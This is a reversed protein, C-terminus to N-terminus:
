GEETLRVLIKSTNMTVSINNFATINVTYERGSQLNYFATSDSTILRNRVQVKACNNDIVIVIYMDAPLTDNPQSLKLSFSSTTINRIQIIPANVDAYLICYEIIRLRYYIYTCFNM